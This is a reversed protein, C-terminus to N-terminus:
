ACKAKYKAMVENVICTYMDRGNGTKLLVNYCNLGKCYKGINREVYIFLCMRADIGSMMKSKM